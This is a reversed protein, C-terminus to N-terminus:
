LRSYKNRLKGRLIIALMNLLLVILLLLMCTAFMLSSVQPETQNHFAGDYIFVGLHMFQRDFHVYPFENDIPLTPAYKVAGVLILPAVEGAARAIALIVGTLIGPSAMPLVVNRITEFKTAGLAFAGERVNKPVRSLGEETSVIVVPLTLLGMTLAAWLLGPSAFTPSPLKDAYFLADISGGVAYVFFGLGFVGYVVSPVAAMNSIAIRLVETLRSAGAYEHLYIATVAGFPTVVLTMVLVLLVTGFIAPFVGGSSGAQKPFDTLFVGIKNFAFSWKQWMSLTNPQYLAQMNQIAVSQTQGNDLKLNVRYGQLQQQIERAHGQWRTFEALTKKYLPLTVDVAKTNLENIQKHLPVLKQMQIDSLNQELQAVMDRMNSLNNLNYYEVQNQTLSTFNGVYERGSDTDLVFLNDYRSVKVEGLQAGASSSALKRELEDQLQEATLHSLVYQTTRRSPKSAQNVQDRQEDYYSTTVEYSTMSMFYRAGQYVIFALIAVLVVLIIATALMSSVELSAHRFRTILKSSYLTSLKNLM